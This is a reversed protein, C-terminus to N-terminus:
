DVCMFTTGLRRKIMRKLSESAAPMLSPAVQQSSWWFECCWALYLWTYVARLILFLIFVKIQSFLGDQVTFCLVSDLWYLCYYVFYSKLIHVYPILVLWIYYSYRFFGKYCSKLNISSNKSIHYGKSDTMELPM